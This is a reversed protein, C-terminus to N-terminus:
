KIYSIITILYLSSFIFIFAKFNSTSILTINSNSGSRLSLKLTLLSSIVIEVLGLTIIYFINNM